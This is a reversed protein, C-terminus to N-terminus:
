DPQLKIGSGDTILHQASMKKPHMIRGLEISLAPIDAVIIPASNKKDIILLSLRGVLYFEFGLGLMIGRYDGFNRRGGLEIRGLVVM